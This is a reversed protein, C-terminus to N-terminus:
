KQCMTTLLIFLVILWKKKDYTSNFPSDYEDILNVAGAIHLHGTIWCTSLLLTRLNQKDMDRVLFDVDLDGHFTSRIVSM